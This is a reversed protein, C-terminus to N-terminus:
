YNIPVYFDIGRPSFTILAVLELFGRVTMTRTATLICHGPPEGDYKLCLGAPIPHGQDIGWWQLKQKRKKDASQWNESNTVVMGEPAMRELFLSIGQGPNVVFSEQAEEPIRGTQNDIELDSFRLFDVNPKTAAGSRFVEKALEVDIAWLVTGPKPFSNQGVM